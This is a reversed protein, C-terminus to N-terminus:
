VPPWQHRYSLDLAEIPHACWIPLQQERIKRGIQLLCGANATFVARAETAVIHGHKREALREAMEPETLNYTGAAGCCIESEELPVLELKPVMELLQRPQTRIKQAHALHCADHYTARIPLEGTPPVPGLEILFESIDRVKEAFTAPVIGRRVGDIASGTDNGSATGLASPSGSEAIHGYDKLMSGCGAVNVIIADIDNLDFAACNQAMFDYAPLENGSHYHIAGCCSQNRPVIVECGNAQLVRATAWNTDRFIVDGVCGTFLAVRARRKGHAPLFEPLRPSFYRFRPLMEQLQRLRSPLLRYAGLKRLLWDLGTLQAFRAPALGVRMRGPYPFMGYLVWRHFWDHTKSPSALTGAQPGAIMPAGTRGPADGTVGGGEREMAIRFPEILRGYQVGSPCASECSRCDLCLELHRRVNQTLEIRGDQFGRMLYIRGRPSDNENGTELYTPCSSTCLGCHVCDLFLEYPIGAAHNAGAACEANRDTDSVVNSSM